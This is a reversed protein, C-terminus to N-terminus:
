GELPIAVGHITFEDHIMGRQDNDMTGNAAQVSLERMRMLLGHVENLAGEATQSMSIGDAANRRAAGLSRIQSRLSESIALGAADDSAGVLRRM